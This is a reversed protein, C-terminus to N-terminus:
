KEAEIFDSIKKLDEDQNILLQHTKPAQGRMEQMYVIFSKPYVTKTQTVVKKKKSVTFFLTAFLLTLFASSGLIGVVWQPLKQKNTEKLEEVKNLLGNVEQKFKEADIKITANSVENAKKIWLQYNAETIKNLELQRETIEKSSKELENQREELQDVIELLVEIKEKNM